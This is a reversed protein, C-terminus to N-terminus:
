DKCKSSLQTLLQDNFKETIELDETAKTLVKTQMKFSELKPHTWDVYCEQSKHTIIILCLVVAVAKLNTSIPPLHSPLSYRSANPIAMPLHTVTKITEDDLTVHSEEERPSVPLFQLKSNSTPNPFLLSLFKQM